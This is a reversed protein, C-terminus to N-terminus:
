QLRRKEMRLRDRRVLEKVFQVARQGQKHNEKLLQNLETRKTEADKIDGGIIAYCYYRFRKILDIPSVDEAKGNAPESIGIFLKAKKQKMFCKFLGSPLRAVTNCANYYSDLEEPQGKDAVIEGTITIQPTDAPEIHLRYGQDLRRHGEAFVVDAMEKVLIRAFQRNGRNELEIAIRLMTRLTETFLIDSFFLGKNYDIYTKNCGALAFESIMHATHIQTDFDKDNMAVLLVVYNPPVDEPLRTRPNKGWGKNWSSECLCLIQKIAQQYANYDSAKFAQSGLEFLQCAVKKMQATRRVPVASRGISQIKSLISPPPANPKLRSSIVPFVLYLTLSLVGVCTGIITYKTPLSWSKWQRKSPLIRKM